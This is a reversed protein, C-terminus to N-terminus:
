RALGCARKGEVTGLNNCDCSDMLSECLDEHEPSPAIRSEESSARRLCAERENTNTECQCLKESLARCQSRCGASLLLSCALLCASLFRPM